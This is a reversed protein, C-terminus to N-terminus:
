LSITKLVQCLSTSLLSNLQCMEHLVTNSEYERGCRRLQRRCNEKGDRERGVRLRVGGRGDCWFAVRGLVNGYRLSIHLYWACSRDWVIPWPRPQRPRWPRLEPYVQFQQKCDHSVRHLDYYSLLVFSTKLVNRKPVSKSRVPVQPRAIPRTEYHIKCWASTQKSM